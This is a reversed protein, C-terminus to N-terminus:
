YSGNEIVGLMEDVYSKTAYEAGTDDPNIWIEVSEDTPEVTGVYVEEISASGSGEPIEIADILNDVETKNYYNSLDTTPIDIGDILTDVEEKNYYGSLDTETPEPLEDFKSDIETKTYYNSLDTEPIDIGDILADVEEKNYYNSLDTEPIDLNNVANDVYETTATTDKLTQIDTKNQEIQAAEEQTAGSEIPNESLYAIVAEGIAEEDVMGEVVKLREIISNWNLIETETYVYDAPKTRKFVNFEASQKTYEKDFGYVRIRWDTQLLINPVEVLRKGGEEYVPVILSCSDTRNCFHVCNISADNVVLRRNSDWQYFSERGDEIQFM